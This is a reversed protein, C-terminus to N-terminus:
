ETPLDLPGGDIPSPLPSPTSLSNDPLQNNETMPIPTPSPLPTAPPNSNIPKAKLTELESVVKSYDTSTVELYKLTTELALIARPYDGTNEYLKALNYYANGYNPRLQIATQIETIARTRLTGASSADKQNDALQSLLAAFELHLSPNARDLSLARSFTELAFNEAGDAVNVLNQYIKAVTLWTRSDNPRLQIATKGSKISQQILRTITARDADTLDPKQSLSSALRFNVDAFSLHYNTIKPSFRLTQLHLDYVKQSDGADLALQAQRMIIESAYSRIPSIGILFILGIIMVSVTLHHSTPLTLESYTHKLSLAYFVFFLLYLPLSGPLFLLSLTILITASFIPTSYTGVLSKLMIFLLALTTTIGATPLITLLESSAFQPLYNWLSTTNIALPKVSTYLLSYNSLGIGFLLSRLPKLADLAISWSAAYPLLSPTLAGGPLMLSIIAVISITSIFLSGFYFYKEKVTAHKLRSIMLSVSTLILILTTLYNGTPTFNINQMYIPLYPSKSLITLSLLSHLSLIVGSAIILNILKKSYESTLLPILITTFICLSILITAKSSLAESRGEPNFILSGILTLFFLILPLSQSFSPLNLQKTKFAKIATLLLVLLTALTLLLEKPTSLFNPTLTWFLLPTLLITLSTIIRMSEIM